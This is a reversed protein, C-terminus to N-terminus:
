APLVMGPVKGIFDSKGLEVGSQRLIAYATTAHFMFNPIAFRILYVDGKFTSPQGAIRIVVERSEAGDFKAAPLGSVFEVTRALRAKIESFSQENDEYSPVDVGALRASAGKAFDTALQVQRILPFMDPFLRAELLVRPEIKRARAYSEAKAMVGTLADLGQVFLPVSAAHM